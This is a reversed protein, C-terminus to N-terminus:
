RTTQKVLLIRRVWYVQNDISCELSNQCLPNYQIKHMLVCGPFQCVFVRKGASIALSKMDINVSLIYLVKPSIIQRIM